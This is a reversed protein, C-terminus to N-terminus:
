RFIQLSTELRMHDNELLAHHLKELLVQLIVDLTTPDTCKEHAIPVYLAFICLALVILLFKSVASCNGPTCVKRVRFKSACLSHVGPFQEVTEFNRSIKRACDSLCVKLCLNRCCCPRGAVAGPGAHIQQMWHRRSATATQLRPIMMQLLAIINSVAEHFTALEVIVAPALSSSQKGCLDTHM